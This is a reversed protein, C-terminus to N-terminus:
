PLTSLLGIEQANSIPTDLTALQRNVMVRVANDALARQWEPGRARLLTLLARVNAVEAPLALDESTKGVHEALQAFYLIKAM